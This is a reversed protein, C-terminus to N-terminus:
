LNAPESENFGANDRYRGAAGKKTCHFGKSSTLTLLGCYGMWLSSKGTKGETRRRLILDVKSNLTLKESAPKSGPALEFIGLM